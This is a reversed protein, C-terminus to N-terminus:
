TGPAPPVAAHPAHLQSRLAATLLLVAYLTSCRSATRGLGYSKSKVVCTLDSVLDAKAYAGSETLVQQMM